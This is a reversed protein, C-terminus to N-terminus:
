SKLKKVTIKLDNPKNAVWTAFKQIEPVTKLKELTNYDLALDRNTFVAHVQSHCPRCLWAVRTLM